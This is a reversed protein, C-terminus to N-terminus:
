ALTCALTDTHIVLLDWEGGVYVSWTDPNTDGFKPTWTYLVVPSDTRRVPHMRDEIDSHPRTRVCQDDKEKGRQYEKPTSSSNLLSSRYQRCHPFFDRTTLTGLSRREDRCKGGPGVRRRPDEQGVDRRRTDRSM